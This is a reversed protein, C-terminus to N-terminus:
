AKAAVPLQVETGAADLGSVTVAAGAPLPMVFLRYLPQGSVPGVQARAVEVGNAKAVVTTINAAAIGVAVSKGKVTAANWGLANPSKLCAETSAGGIGFVLCNQDTGFQATWPEGEVMGAGVLGTALPGSGTKGFNEAQTVVAQWGPEDTPAVSAAVDLLAAEPLDASTVEILLGPQEEWWFTTYSSSAVKYGAKGNITAPTVGTVFPSLLFVDIYRRDISTAEVILHIHENDPDSVYLLRSYSGRLAANPGTYVSQFGAPVAKIVFASPGNKTAVVSNNVAAHVKPTVGVSYSTFLRKQSFWYVIRSNGNNEVFARQGKVTTRPAKRSIFDKSAEKWRAADFPEAFVSVGQTNSADRVYSMYTASTQPETQDLVEEIVYTAPLRTPLLRAVSAAGAPAALSLAGVAATLSAVLVRTWSRRTPRASSRQLPLHQAIAEM